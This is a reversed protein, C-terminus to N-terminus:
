RQQPPPAARIAGHLNWDYHECVKGILERAVQADFWVKETLHQVWDLLRLSTDTRDLEIAYRDRCKKHWATEVVVYKGKIHVVPPPETDDMDAACIWALKGKTPEPDSTTKRGPNKPM